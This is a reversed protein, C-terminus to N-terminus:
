GEFPANAVTGDAFRRVLQGSRYLCKGCGAVSWCRVTKHKFPSARTTAQCMTRTVVGLYNFGSDQVGLAVFCDAAGSWIKVNIRSASTVGPLDCIAVTKPTAEFGNSVYPADAV